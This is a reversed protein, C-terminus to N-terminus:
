IRAEKEFHTVPDGHQIASFQHFVTFWSYRFFFFSIMIYFSSFFESLKTTSSHQIEWGMKRSSKGRCTFNM